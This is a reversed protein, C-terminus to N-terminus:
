SPPPGAEVPYLYGEPFWGAEGVEKRTEKCLRVGAAWGSPTVDFIKVLDNTRLAIQAKDTERPVYDYRAVRVEGGDKLAAAAGAAGATDGGASSATTGRGADSNGRPQAADSNGHAQGGAIQAEVPCAKCVHEEYATLDGIWECTTGTERAVRQADKGFEYKFHDSHHVCRVRLNNRLRQLLSMAGIKPADPSAKDMSMIDKKQLKASCKPDPCPIYQVPGETNGKKQKSVQENKWAYFCTDCFLHSCTTIVPRLIVFHCMPCVLHDGGGEVELQKPSVRRRGGDDLVLSARQREAAAEKSEGAHKGADKGAEGSAKAAEKPEDARAGEDRGADEPAQADQPAAPNGEPVRPASTSSGGSGGSPSAGGAKSPPDGTRRQRAPTPSSDVEVVAAGAGGGQWANGGAERRRAAGESTGATNDSLARSTPSPRPEGATADSSARSTPSPRPEGVPDSSARSTPSPGPFFPPKDSYAEGDGGRSPTTGPPAQHAAGGNKHWVSATGNTMQPRVGPAAGQKPTIVSRSPPMAVTPTAGEERGERRMGDRRNVRQLTFFPLHVKQRKCCSRVTCRVEDVRPCVSLRTQLQDLVTAPDGVDNQELRLWLPSTNPLRAAEAATILVEVGVATFHNHSLHIEEIGPVHKCLDALGEAGGDDIQNKYLKLIRLKPCRRCVDLVMRLGSSSLENQSFDVEEYSHEQRAPLERRLQQNITDDSLHRRSYNLRYTTSTQGAM